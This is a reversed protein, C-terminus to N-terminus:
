FIIDLIINHEYIFKSAFSTNILNAISDINNVSMVFFLIAFGIYIVLLGRLIGYITGGAKDCQKIIPLEAVGELVFKVLILAIRIVIFLGIIVIITVTKEAIIKAVSKVVENKKDEVTKSVYKEIYETAANKAEEEKEEKTEANKVKEKTTDVEEKLDQPTEDEGTVGKEIIFAEINEDFETKDIILNAVPKYLVWTLIIALLFACLKYLVNILGKKYGLFISLALIALVILDLVIGM